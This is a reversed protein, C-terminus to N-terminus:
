HNLCYLKVALLLSFVLLTLALGFKVNISFNSEKVKSLLLPDMRRMADAEEPTLDKENIRELGFPTEKYLNM